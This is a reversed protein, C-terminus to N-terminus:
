TINGHRLGNAYQSLACFLAIPTKRSSRKGKIPWVIPVGAFGNEPNKESIPVITNNVSIKALTRIRAVFYVNLLADKRSQALMIDVGKDHHRSEPLKLTTEMKHTEHIEGKRDGYAEHM